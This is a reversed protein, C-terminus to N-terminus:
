DDMGVLKTLGDRADFTARVKRGVLAEAVRAAAADEESRGTPARGATETDVPEGWPRGDKAREHHVRVVEFEVDSGRAVRGALTVHVERAVHQPVLEERVRFDASISTGDSWRYVPDRGGCAASLLAVALALAPAARRM